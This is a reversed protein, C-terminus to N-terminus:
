FFQRVFATEYISLNYFERNIIIGTKLDTYISYIMDDDDPIHLVNTYKEQM